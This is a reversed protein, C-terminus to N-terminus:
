QFLPVFDLPENDIWIDIQMNRRGAYQLKYERATYHVPVPMAVPEHEYRRTLCLVEHGHQKALECFADWFPKDRSYTGDHDLAIKM